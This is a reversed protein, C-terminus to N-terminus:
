STLAMPQDLHDHPHLDAAAFHLPLWRVGFFEHTIYAGVISLLPVGVFSVWLPVEIHGLPDNEPTSPAKKATLTTFAKTFIEPKAFLGVLAGVVMMSVGWWLSWQNVIEARSIAVVAGSPATYSAIDGRQIMIPALIVFNVLAGLLVSTAVRIGMLGGVGLM